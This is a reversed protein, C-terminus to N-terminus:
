GSVPKTLVQLMLDASGLSISGEDGFGLYAVDISGSSPGFVVTLRTGKPLYQKVRVTDSGYKITALGQVLLIIGVTGVIKWATRQRSLRRAILEMALWRTGDGIRDTAVVRSGRALFGRVYARGMGRAGGTVVVVKGELTM